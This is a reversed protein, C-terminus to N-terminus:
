RKARPGLAAGEENVWRRSWARVGSRDVVGDHRGRVRTYSSVWGTRGAGAMNPSVRWRRARAYCATSLGPTRHAYLIALGPSLGVAVAIISFVWDPLSDM